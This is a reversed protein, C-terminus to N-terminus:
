TGSSGVEVIPSKSYYCQLAFGLYYCISYNPLIKELTELRGMEFLYAIIINSKYAEHNASSHYIDNIGGLFCEFTM